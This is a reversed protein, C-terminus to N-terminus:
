IYKEVCLRRMMLCDPNRKRCGNKYGHESRSVYEAITTNLNITSKCIRECDMRDPCGTKSDVFSMRRREEEKSREIKLSCAACGCPKVSLKKLGVSNECEM